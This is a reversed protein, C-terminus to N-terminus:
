RYFEESEDLSQPSHDPDTLRRRANRRRRLYRRFLPGLGLWEPQLWLPNPPDDDLASVLLTRTDKVAAVAAAPVDRWQMVIGIAREMSSLIAADARALAATWVPADNAEEPLALLFSEALERATQMPTQAAAGQSATRQAATGQGATNQILADLLSLDLEARVEALLIQLAGAIDLPRIDAHDAFPAVTDAAQNGAAQSGVAQNPPPGPEAVASGARPQAADAAM